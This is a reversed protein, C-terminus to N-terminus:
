AERPVELPIWLIFRSGGEPKDQLDIGGGHAAAIERAINLGLGMGEVIRRGHSGRFFPEFVKEREEAPIGPGTDAVQLVFQGDRASASVAIKGGPPTFKVANSLLNGAAQAMRDADMWIVPLDSPIEEAWTLGKERAAAAWSSMVGALWANLDVATRNLELRGLIQDHLGALEDLLRQLRSTEGDMGALLDKKLQPDKDAGKQLAQIASRIAGLPRGLEHVLNALLQRRATELSNLQDVLANVTGALARIEDPGKEEVHAQWDGQALAQISGTAQQIPRNISFALYSGLGIGALVGFLLIGGLLYRLQYIEDSVTAVRTTMRIVGIPQGELDFVPTFVEALAGRQLQVVEGQGMGSLDPLEVMQTGVSGNTPESTALTRGDLTLLSVRGSLYPTVGDVLARAADNNQWFIPQNRTIEAMLAADTALNKYVVPLLLRTELVYVMAAGMLPIILLAPLIHSLILRNRLSHFM